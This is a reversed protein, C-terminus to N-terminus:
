NVCVTLSRSMRDLLETTAAERGFFLAADQEEFASLGRYPSDIVGSASALPPPALEDTWTLGNRTSIVPTGGEGALGPDANLIRQHLEQLEPGPDVGLEGTLVERADRYAALAEGQRGDRYLALMLLAHLHERLPHAGALHRLEGIVESHRGLHLDADIRTELAQLRLAALRPV